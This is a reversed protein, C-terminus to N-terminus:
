EDNSEEISFRDTTANYFVQLGDEILVSWNFIEGYQMESLHENAIEFAVEEDDPSSRDVFAKEMEDRVIDVPNANESVIKCALNWAMFACTNAVVHDQQPLNTIYAQLSEMNDPTAFFGCKTIIQKM